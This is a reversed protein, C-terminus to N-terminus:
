VVRLKLVEVMASSCEVHVGPSGARYTLPPPGDRRGLCAVSSCARAASRSSSCTAAVIFRLECSSSTTRSCPRRRTVSPPVPLLRSSSSSCLITSKRHSILATCRCIPSPDRGGAGLRAAASTNHPGTNFSAVPNRNNRWRWANAPPPSTGVWLLTSLPSHSHLTAVTFWVLYQQISESPSNRSM